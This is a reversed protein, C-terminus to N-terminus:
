DCNNGGNIRLEMFVDVGGGDVPNIRLSTGYLKNLRQNINFVGVGRAHEKESLITAIKEEPIGCGDDKVGIRLLSDVRKVYVLITGGEPKSRIGHVVANEVLPQLILPPVMLGTEDIDYNVRLKDGFRAQELALFSRIFGLENEIPIEDDLNNFDFCGRLYNSFEMLLRRAQNVDDRSVSIITNLSNHLFHPRIQAKLFKLEVNRERESLVQLEELAEENKRLLATFRRALVYAQLALMVFFGIPSLEFLGGAILNNQFLLDHGFGIMVAMLGVFTVIADTKGHAVAAAICIFIYCLMLIDIAQIGYVLATFFSIPTILTILAAGFGYALFVKVARKDIFDKFLELVLLAILGPFLLVIIYDLHVCVDFSNFPLFDNISYVGYIMTRCVAMLCLAAFYLSSKESKRFFFILLFLLGMMLFSGLLFFDRSNIQKVINTIQRPTGLFLTYWMGGRAYTYNSVQIVINFDSAPPTFNVQQPKYQAVGKSPQVSVTGNTAMLEGNIYLRYATSLTPVWLALQQGKKAGTVKLSYTACGYGTLKKGGIRYANWVEPVHGTLDPSVIGQTIEDYSVFREWYFDWKGNLPIVGNSKDGWAAINLTGNSLAPTNRDSGQFLIFGAAIMFGTILLVFSFNLINKKSICIAKKMIGNMEIM